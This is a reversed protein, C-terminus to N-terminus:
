DLGQEDLNSGRDTKQKVNKLYFELNSLRTALHMMDTRTERSMKQLVEQNTKAIFIGKSSVNYIHKIQKSLEERLANLEIDRSQKETLSCSKYSIFSQYLAM